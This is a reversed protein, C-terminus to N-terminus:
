LIKRIQLKREDPKIQILNNSQTKKKDAEDAKTVSYESRFLVDSMTNLKEPQYIIEFDFGNFIRGM